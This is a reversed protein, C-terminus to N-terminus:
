PFLVNSFLLALDTCYRTPSEAAHVHEGELCSLLSREVIVSVLMYFIKSLM